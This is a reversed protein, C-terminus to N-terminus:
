PVSAPVRWQDALACRPLGVRQAEAELAQAKAEGILPQIQVLYQHAEDTQLHDGLWRAILLPHEAAPRQDAGSRVVADCLNEIDLRYPEPVSAVASTSSGNRCSAVVGLCLLLQAIRTM